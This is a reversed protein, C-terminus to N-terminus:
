GGRWLEVINIGLDSLLRSLLPLSVGLVNSYDGHIEDIFWGGRGQLSFAGAARLPEGTAIYADIEEESPSGFRIKTQGVGSARRGFDKDIICHGTLLVGTRGALRIWLERAQAASSPKSTVESTADSKGSIELVSDCGLILGSDVQDAVADAKATALAVVLSRPADSKIADEDVGSAM